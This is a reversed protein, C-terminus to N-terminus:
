AAIPTLSATAATLTYTNGNILPQPTALTMSRKFTGGTVLSWISIHTITVSGGDWSTFVSSSSLAKSGGSAAAYSLAQRTASPNNATGAAGPDGTHYQVWATGLETDLESNVLAAARGVTM